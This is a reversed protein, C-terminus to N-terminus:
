KIIFNYDASFTVSPGHSWQGGNWILGYDVGPSFRWKGAWIDVKAGAGLFFVKPGVFASIDPSIALKPLTQVPVTKTIYKTEQISKHWLMKVDYGTAECEYTKNDTFHYKSIPVVVYSTDHVTVIKPKRGLSDMLEEITESYNGILQMLTDAPVLEYGAPLVTKEPDYDYIAEKVTVTDVKPEPANKEANRHGCFFGSAFILVLIALLVLINSQKKM